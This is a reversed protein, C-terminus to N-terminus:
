LSPPISALLKDLAAVPMAFGLGYGGPITANAIGVVQGSLDVVPGGSNGPNIAVNLQLRTRLAAPEMVAGPEASVIGVTATPLTGFPCGLVAVWEGPAAPGSRLTLAPMPPLAGLELVALDTDRDLTLLRAPWHQSKWVVEPTSALADVVHAATVIRRTGHVRFGSGRLHKGDGIALVAPFTQQLVGIFDVPPAPRTTACSSLLVVALSLNITAIARYVGEQIRLWSEARHRHITVVMNPGAVSSADAGTAPILM